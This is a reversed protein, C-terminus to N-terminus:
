FVVTTGAVFNTMVKNALTYESGPSSHTFVEKTPDITNASATFIKALDFKVQITIPNQDDAKITKPTSSLKVLDVGTHYSVSNLEKGSADYIIGEMVLFRYKLMGWYMSQATSLPHNINFSSPNSNNHVSDLGALFNFGNYEGAPITDTLTFTSGNKYNFFIVDEIDYNQKTGTMKIRSLYMKMVDMRFQYNVGNVTFPYKVDPKLLSDGFYYTFTIKAPANGEKKCSQIFPIFLLILAYRKLISFM